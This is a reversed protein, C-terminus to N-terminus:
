LITCCNVFYSFSLESLQYNKINWNSLITVWYCPWPVNFYSCSSDHIFSFGLVTHETKVYYCFGLTEGWDSPTELASCMLEAPCVCYTVPSLCLKMYWSLHLALLHLKKNVPISCWASTCMSNGCFRQQM